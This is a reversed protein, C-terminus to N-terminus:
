DDSKEIMLPGKPKPKPKPKGADERAADPNPAIKRPGKDTPARERAAHDPGPKELQLPAAARPRPGLGKEAELADLLAAGRAEARRVRMATLYTEQLTPSSSGIAEGVRRELETDNLDDLLAITRLALADAVDDHLAM